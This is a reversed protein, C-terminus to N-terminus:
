PIPTAARLVEPVPGIQKVCGQELILARDAFRRAQNIDHTVVVCTLHSERVVRQLLAEIATKSSDDLASTPEDLLLAIPRNALCRALAVRQAEGGSLNSIDSEAYAPLGVDALIQDIEEAALREGRQAPGFAINSAITGPFLFSRQTMMGVKRRLVRPPLNCYDVGELYVTGETPEDLRNLLRLLSSKGSGSPGVIALIEGRVISFSVDAVLVKDGVRRGLHDTRLIPEPFVQPTRHSSDQM